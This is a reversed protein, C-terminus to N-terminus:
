KFVQKSKNAESHVRDVKRIFNGVERRFKMEVNVEKADSGFAKEMECAINASTFNTAQSM